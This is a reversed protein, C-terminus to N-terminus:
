FRSAVPRVSRRHYKRENTAEWNIFPLNFDGILTIGKVKETQYLPYSLVDCVSVPSVAFQRLLDDIGLGSAM